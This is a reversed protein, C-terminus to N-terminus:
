DPSNSQILAAILTNDMLMAVTMPGVGGPVPTIYSVKEKVNEFDVDGCLRGNKDRNIGVDIVVANDKVMDATIFEPKGVASILIDADKTFKRLDETKSHCITVTADQNLLLGSLPKGVINSRGVIVCHKGAVKINYADLMMAVGRATCPLLVSRDKWLFGTHVSTFGDVDKELRICETINQENIHKPLPLQVMIGNINKNNNLKYIFNILEREEISDPFSYELYNIGVEACSKKKNNLYIRSAPNDGVVVAALTVNMHSAEIEQKMISKLRKALEKGDLLMCM